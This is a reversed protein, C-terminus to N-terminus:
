YELSFDLLFSRVEQRLTALRVDEDRAKIASLMWDAIQAIHEEKLGRTTLAPTGLRIGSPKFPPNPDDPVSNKNLTLGIKDLAEEAEKGNIGFSTQVNALILHNSTGGTVLDFGRKNLEDALVSANKLIQEAYTKFEPRMAEGFAVAKAAIVHM